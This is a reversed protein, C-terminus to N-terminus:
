NNLVTSLSHDNRTVALPPFSVFANVTPYLANMMNDIGRNALTRNLGPYFADMDRIPLCHHHLKEAGAPSVSYAVTGLARSLRFPAPQIPTTQYLALNERIGNQNFLGICQSVGPLLDFALISDFNWGWLVIDWDIPLSAILRSAHAQFDLHFVADDEALTLIRNHKCAAEWQALHSLACGIAGHSYGPMEAAFIHHELLRERSISKGDVAPIREVHKLHRNEELFTALRAPSRDLNIVSIPLDQQPPPMLSKDAAYLIEIRSPGAPRARQARPPCKTGRPPKAIDERQDARFETAVL